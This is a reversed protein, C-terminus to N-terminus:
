GEECFGDIRRSDSNYACFQRFLSQHSMKKEKRFMKLNERRMTM